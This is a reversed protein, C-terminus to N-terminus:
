NVAYVEFDLAIHKLKTEAEYMEAQNIKSAAMIEGNAEPWADIVGEVARAIEDAEEFDESFVSIQIRKRGAGAPGDLTYDTLNSVTKYVLYPARTKNEALLPFIRDGVFGSIEASNSLYSYLAANLNM